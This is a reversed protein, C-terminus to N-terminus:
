SPKEVEGPAEGGGSELAQLEGIQRLYDLTIQAEAEDV